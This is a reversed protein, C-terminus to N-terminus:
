VYLQPSMEHDYKAVTTVVTRHVIVAALFQWKDGM